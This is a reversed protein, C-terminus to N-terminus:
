FLKLRDQKCDLEVNRGQLCNVNLFVSRKMVITNQGKKRFFSFLVLAKVCLRSKLNIQLFMKDLLQLGASRFLYKQFSIHSTGYSFLLPQLLHVCYFRFAADISLVYSPAAACNTGSSLSLSGSTGSLRLFVEGGPSFFGRYLYGRGEHCGEQFPNWNQWHTLLKCVSRCPSNRYSNM